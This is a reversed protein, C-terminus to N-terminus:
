ASCGSPVPNGRPSGVRPLRGECDAIGVTRNRDSQQVQWASPARKRRVTQPSQVGREAAANADPDSGTTDPTPTSSTGPSRRTKEVGEAVRQGSSLEPNFAHELGDIEEEDRLMLTVDDEGGRSSSRLGREHRRRRDSRPQRVTAADRLGHSELTELVGEVRSGFGVRYAHPRRQRDRPRLADDHRRKPQPMDAERRQARRGTATTSNPPRGTGRITPPNQGARRWEPSAQPPPTARVQYPRDPTVTSGRM